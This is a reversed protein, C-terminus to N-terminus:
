QLKMRESPDAMLKAWIESDFFADGFLRSANQISSLMGASQQLKMRESPDAMLKAWIESDFFADGFLRSSPATCSRSAAAQAGALGPKL